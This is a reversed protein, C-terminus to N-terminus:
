ARAPPARALLPRWAPAVPRPASPRWEPPVHAAAAAQVFPAAPLVPLAPSHQQQCLLCHSSRSLDGDQAPDAPADSALLSQLLVQKMGQPTCVMVWLAADDAATSAARAPAPLPLATFLLLLLQVWLMLSVVRRQRRPTRHLSTRSPLFM